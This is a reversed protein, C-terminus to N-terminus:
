EYNINYVGRSVLAPDVSLTGVRSRAEKWGIEELAEDLMAKWPAAMEPNMMFVNGWVLSAALYVDPHNTLLWNTPSSPSLNFAKRYRFTFTHTQDCVADVQLNVGNICWATPAQQGSKIPMTGAISPKLLTSEDFTTLHLAIPEVFDSPLAATQSGKAISVATDAEMVRLPLERNLRSEALAVFNSTDSTFEADDRWAFKAIATLLDSYTSISV